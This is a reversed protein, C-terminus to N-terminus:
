RSNSRIRAFGAGICLKPLHTPSVEQFDEFNITSGIRIEQNKRLFDEVCRSGEQLAIATPLNLFNNLM